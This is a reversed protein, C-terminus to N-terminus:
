RVHYINPSSIMCLQKQAITVYVCPLIYLGPVLFYLYLPSRKLYNQQDIM